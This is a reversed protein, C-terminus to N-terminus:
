LFGSNRSFTVRVSLVTLYTLSKRFPGSASAFHPAPRRAPPARAPKDICSNPTRIEHVRSGSAGRAVPLDRSPGEATAAMAEWVDSCSVVSTCMPTLNVQGPRSASPWSCPSTTEWASTPGSTTTPSLRRRARRSPFCLSGHPLCSRHPRRPSHWSGGRGGGGAGQMCTEPRGRLPLLRGARLVNQFGQSGGVRGAGPRSDPRPGRCTGRGSGKSM